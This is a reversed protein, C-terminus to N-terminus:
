QPTTDDTLLNKLYLADTLNYEGNGDTDSAALCPASPAVTGSLFAKVCLYDATTIRGDGNTDGRLVTYFVSSQYSLPCGTGVIGWLTDATVSSPLANRLESATMANKLYVLGANVELGVDPFAPMVTVTGSKTKYDLEAYSSDFLAGSKQVVKIDYSGSASDTIQLKIYGVPGLATYDERSDTFTIRLLNTSVLLASFHDATLGSGKSFGAYNLVTDNFAIDISVASLKGAGEIFLALTVTDGGCGTADSLSVLPAHAGRATIPIFLMTLAILIALFRKM